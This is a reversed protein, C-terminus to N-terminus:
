DKFPGEQRAEVPICLVVADRRFSLVLVRGNVCCWADCGRGLSCRGGKRKGEVRYRFLDAEASHGLFVPPITWREAKALALLHLGLSLLM